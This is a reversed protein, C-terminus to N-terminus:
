QKDRNKCDANLCYTCCQRIRHRTQPRFLTIIPYYASTSIPISNKWLELIQFLKYSPRVLSILYGVDYM